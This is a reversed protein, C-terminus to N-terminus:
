GLEDPENKGDLLACIRQQLITDKNSRVLPSNYNENLAAFANPLRDLSDCVIRVYEQNNLNAVLAAQAPQEELDRGLHARGVRRRLKQKESGFFHEPINNTREAVFIISGNSDMQVPHGFLRNGYRDLYTLIISEPSAKTLKVDDKKQQAVRCRIDNHYDATKKKLKELLAVMERPIKMRQSNLANDTKSSYVSPLENDTLRLTDRLENFVTLRKELRLMIARIRDDKKVSSLISGVKKLVTQEIGSRPEPLWKEIFTGAELYRHCTDFHPLSFPYPADKSKKGELLYLILSHLDERMVGSGYKGSYDRRTTNNRLDRLLTRLESRTRSKKLLSRLTGYDTDFLKKGVAGLFHFHCILDVVGRECLPQVALGGAKGLDRMVSIPDGFLECSKEIVPRLEAENETTIRAANLVWGHRGDICVFLGGKGYECTADIHLPYGDKMAAQLAPSNAIHLSEVFLLFRDCLESISGESLKVGDQHWLSEQIESRQMRHIYRALGVCVILDYGYRQGSPVLQALESSVEVPHSPNVCCIKRVERAQIVGSKITIIQRKKSKQVQLKSGCVSCQIAEAIFDVTVATYKENAGPM